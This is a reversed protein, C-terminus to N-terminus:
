AKESCYLEILDTTMRLWGGGGNGSEHAHWWMWGVAEMM